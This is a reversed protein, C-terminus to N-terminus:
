LISISFGTARQDFQFETKRLGSLLQWAAAVGRFPNVRLLLSAIVVFPSLLLLLPALLLWVLILPLWFRFRPSEGCHFSIVALLPIV